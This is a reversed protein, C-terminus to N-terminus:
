KKKKSILAAVVLGGLVGFTGAVLAKGISLVNKSSQTQHIRQSPSELINSHNETDQNKMRTNNSSDISQKKSVEQNTKISGTKESTNNAYNQAHVPNSNADVVCSASYNKNQNIAQREKKERDLRAYLEKAAEIEGITRNDVETKHYDYNQGSVSSEFQNELYGYENIKAVVIEKGHVSELASIKTKVDKALGRDQTILLVKRTLHKKNIRNILQVDAFTDFYHDRLVVNDDLFRKATEVYFIDYYKTLLRQAKQSQVKKEPNLTHKELEKTVAYLVVIKQDYKRLLSAFKSLFSVCSDELLSSTDILIYYNSAYRDMMDYEYGGVFGSM